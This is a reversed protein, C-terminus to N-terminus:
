HGDAEQHAIQVQQLAGLMMASVDWDMKQKSLKQRWHAEMEHWEMSVEM